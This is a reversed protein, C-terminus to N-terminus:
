CSSTLILSLLGNVRLIHHKAEPNRFSGDWLPLYPSCVRNAQQGTPLDHYPRLKFIFRITRSTSVTKEHNLAPKAKITDFHIRFLLSSLCNKFISTNTAGSVFCVESIEKGGEREREM